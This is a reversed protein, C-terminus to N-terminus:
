AGVIDRIMDAKRNNKFFENGRDSTNIINQVVPDVYDRDTFMQEIADKTFNYVIKCLEKNFIWSNSLTRYEMGYNKPRFCSAQGYMTRRKDDADWLVSYVGLQEDMFSTLRRCANFHAGDYINDTPFGGVHVHGGATRMPSAANPKENLEGTIANFDPECGLELAEPPQQKIYDEPFIVSPQRLLQFGPVMNLLQSQVADLHDLFAEETDAPDINFELAMGDVQVAGKEVLFPDYKTGKILGYASWPQGDKAILIEPDAGITFNLGNIEM